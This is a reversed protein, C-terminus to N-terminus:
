ATKERLYTGLFPTALDHLSESQGKTSGGNNELAITDIQMRLLLIRCTKTEGFKSVSVIKRKLFLWALLYHSSTKQKHKGLSLHHQADEWTSMQCKNTKQPFYRKLEKGM